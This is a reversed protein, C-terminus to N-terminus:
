RHTKTLPIRTAFFWGANSSLLSLRAYWAVGEATTVLHVETPIFPPNQKICLAYLTETVVQPTRGTVMLLVRHALAHPEHTYRKLDTM